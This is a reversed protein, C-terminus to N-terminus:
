VRVGGAKTANGSMEGIYEAQNHLGLVTVKGLTFDDGHPDFQQGINDM